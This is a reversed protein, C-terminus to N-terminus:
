SIEGAGNDNLSEMAFICHLFPVLQGYLTTLLYAIVCQVM